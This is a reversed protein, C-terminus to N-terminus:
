KASRIMETYENRIKRHEKHIPHDLNHLGAQHYAKQALKCAQNRKTSLDRTWWRKQFPLPKSVPVHKEIVRDLTDTFANLSSEFESINHLVHPIPLKALETKMDKVLEQWNVKHWNYQPIPNTWTPSINLITAIPIHNTCIPCKSPLVDCSIVNQTLEDSVWMNDPHTYNELKYIRPHQCRSTLGNAHELHCRSRNFTPSRM